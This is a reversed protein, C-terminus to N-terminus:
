ARAVAAGGEVAVGERRAAAGYAAEWRAASALTLTAAIPTAVLGLAAGYVAFILPAQPFHNYGEDGWVGACIGVAVSWVVCFIPVSWALGRAANAGLAHYWRTARASAVRTATARTASVRTAASAAANADTGSAGAGAVVGADADAAGV